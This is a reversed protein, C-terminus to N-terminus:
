SSWAHRRSNGSSAAGSVSKDLFTTSAGTGSSIFLIICFTIHGKHCGPIGSSQSTRSQLIHDIPGILSVPFFSQCQDLLNRGRDGGDLNVLFVPMNRKRIKILFTSHVINSCHLADRDAKIGLLTIHGCKRHLIHMLMLHTKHIVKFPLTSFCKQDNM